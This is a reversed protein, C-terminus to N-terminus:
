QRMREIHDESFQCGLSLMPVLAQYAADLCYSLVFTHTLEIAAHTITQKITKRRQHDHAVTVIPEHLHRQFSKSKM